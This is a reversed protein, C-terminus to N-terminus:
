PVSRYRQGVEIHVSNLIMLRFPEVLALFREPAPEWARDGERAPVVLTLTLFESHQEWKLFGGDFDSIGHSQGEGQGGRLFCALLERRKQVNGFFAQHYVHAPESFYVSPRAHLENHLKDRLPHM